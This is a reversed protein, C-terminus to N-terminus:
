KDCQSILHPLLSPSHRNTGNMTDSGRKFYFETPFIINNNNNTKFVECLLHEITYVLVNAVARLCMCFM